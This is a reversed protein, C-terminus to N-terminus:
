PQFEEHSSSQCLWGAHLLVPKVKEWVIYDMRM